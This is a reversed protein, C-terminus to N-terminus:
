PMTPNTDRSIKKLSILETLTSMRFSGQGNNTEKRVERELKNFIDQIPMRKQLLTILKTTYVSAFGHESKDYVEETFGTAYSIITNDPINQSEGLIRKAKKSKDSHVNLCSDISIVNFGNPNENQIFDYLYYNSLLIKQSTDTMEFFAEATRGRETSGHGAYYIYLITKHPKNLEIFRKIERLSEKFELVTADIKPIVKDFGINDLTKELKNMGVIPTELDRNFPYRQNAILLAVRKYSLENSFTTNRSCGSLLLILMLIFVRM